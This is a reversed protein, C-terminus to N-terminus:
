AKFYKICYRIKQRAKKVGVLFCRRRQKDINVSTRGDINIGFSSSGFNGAQDKHKRFKVILTAKQPMLNQWFSCWRNKNGQVSWQSGDSYTRFLKSVDKGEKEEEVRM